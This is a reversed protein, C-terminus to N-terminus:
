LTTLSTVGDDGGTDAPRTNLTDLWSDFAERSPTKPAIRLFQRLARADSLFLSTGNAYAIFVRGNMDLYSEVITGGGLNIRSRKV